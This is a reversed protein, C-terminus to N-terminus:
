DIEGFEAAGVLVIQYVQSNSTFVRTDVWMGGGGRPRVTTLTNARNQKNEQM